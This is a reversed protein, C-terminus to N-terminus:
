TQVMALHVARALLCASIRLVTVDYHHPGFWLASSQWFHVCNTKLQSLKECTFKESASMRMNLVSCNLM